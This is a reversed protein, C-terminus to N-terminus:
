AESLESEELLKNVLKKLQVSEAESLIKNFRETEAIENEARIADRIRTGEKSLTLLKVRRDTPHNQRTVLNRAELRDILGTVTSADCMFYDSLTRMAKPNGDGLMLLATSQMMTLDYKEAIHIMRHKNRFMLRLLQTYIPQTDDPTNM